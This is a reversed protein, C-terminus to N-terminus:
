EQISLDHLQALCHEGENESAKSTRGCCSAVAARGSSTADVPTTSALAAGACGAENGPTAL